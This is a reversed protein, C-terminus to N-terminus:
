RDRRQIARIARRYDARGWWKETRQAERLRDIDAKSGKQGVLKAAARRPQPDPDRLSEELVTRSVEIPAVDAVAM